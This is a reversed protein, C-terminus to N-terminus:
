KTKFFYQNLKEVNENARTINTHKLTLKYGKLIGIILNDTPKDPNRKVKFPKKIGVASKTRDFIAVYKRIKVDEIEFPAKPAKIKRKGNGWNEGTKIKNLPVKKRIYKRIYQVDKKSLKYNQLSKERLYLNSYHLNKNDEDRYGIEKSEDIENEDLNNFAMCVLTSLGKNHLKGTDDTISVRGHRLTAEGIKYHVKNESLYVKNKDRLSRPKHLDTRYVRGSESIHYREFGELSRCEENNINLSKM